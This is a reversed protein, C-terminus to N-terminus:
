ERRIYARQFGAREAAEAANGCRLYEEVFRRQRITPTGKIKSM